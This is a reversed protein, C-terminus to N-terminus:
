IKTNVKLLCKKLELIKDENRSKSITNSLIEGIFKLLSIDEQNWERRTKNFAIGFYGLSGLESILPIMIVSNINSKKLLGREFEYEDTINKVDKIIILDNKKIKLNLLDLNEIKLGNFNIHVEENSDELNIENSVFLKGKEDLQILFSKDALAFNNIEKLAYNIKLDIEENKAVILDSSIKSILHEFKNRQILQTNLLKLAQTIRSVKEKLEGNEKEIKNQIRYKDSINIHTGTIRKYKGNIDRKGNGRALIHVFHGEKHKLRFEIEYKNIKGYIYKDLHTFTELIDDPHLLSELTSITNELEEDKYGVMRKWEPSLYVTNSILNWDWVGANSNDLAINLRELNQELSAQITSNEKDQQIRSCANDIITKLKRKDWPKKVCACIGIDNVAKEIAKLDTYGTLLIFKSNSSIKKAKVMFLAGNMLSIRQDSIIVEYYSESISKLAEDSSTFLKINYDKNFSLNFLTLNISEDDIYLVKPKTKGNM